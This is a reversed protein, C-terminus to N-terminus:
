CAVKVYMPQTRLGMKKINIAANLDRDLTLGCEECKYKRISLSLTKKINGCSSCMKSSPEFRGIVKLNKGYWESKYELMARFERWGMDSISKSLNKNKVMGSVNLDEICITDYKIILETSIKQLYDIRQNRLKEHLLAVKLKQKERNKSGKQKRSLSRQEIRLKRQQSKFFSKNEFVGGDSTIAFDKIGLDVGVSTKVKITNKKPADVMTDVLISVFYKNTVTKTLTVSKAKGSFGRSYDIKVGKLKPLKITNNEFDIVTGQTFKISQKSYRNKFKPFGGGKLFRKYATDLNILSQQMSQAPCEKMWEFERKLGPLQNMLDYASLNIKNSKYAIRKTELGLNYILRVVGFYKQLQEKQPVTPFIRYKYSKFM